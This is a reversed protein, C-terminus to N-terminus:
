GKVSGITIGRVFYKQFFPYAFLIPTMILVTLAMRVSDTPMNLAMRIGDASSAFSANTTLYDLTSQLKQLLVQLPEKSPTNIYLLGTFWDNWLGVMSFLAITALAPRAIPIVIRFFIVWEDAGDIKAAEILSDPITQTYFTRLIIANWASCLTPLFLILINDGLHLLNTNVIYSPVMGGSFLMTFFLYFTLQKRYKFDKRYIVYAIMGTVVVTLVTGVVTVFVSVGLSSLLQESSGLLYIYGDLSWSKPVFSYGIERISEASSFSIIYVLAVPALFIISLIVMIANLIIDHLLVKQGVRAVKTGFEDSNRDM